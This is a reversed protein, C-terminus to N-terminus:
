LTFRFASTFCAGALIPYGVFRDPYAAQEYELKGLYTRGADLEAECRLAIRLPADPALMWLRPTEEQGPLILDEWNWSVPLPTVGAPVERAPAHRLQFGGGPSSGGQSPAPLLFGIAQSGLNRLEIGIELGGAVRNLSVQQMAVSWLPAGESAKLLIPTLAAMFAAGPAPQSHDPPGWSMTETAAPVYASLRSVTDGPDAVRAPFSDPGLDGLADWVRALEAPECRSHWVGPPADGREMFDGRRRFEVSGDGRAVCTTQQLTEGAAITRGARSAFEIASSQRDADSGSFYRQSLAKFTMQSGSEQQRDM